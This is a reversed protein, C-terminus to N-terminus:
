LMARLLGYLFAIGFSLFVLLIRPGFIEIFQRM